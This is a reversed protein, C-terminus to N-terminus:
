SEPFLLVAPPLFNLTNTFHLHLSATLGRCSQARGAEPERHEETGVEAWAGEAARALSKRQKLMLTTHFTDHNFSETGKCIRLSTGGPMASITHQPWSCHGSTCQFDTQYCSFFSSHKTAKLAVTSPSSSYLSFHPKIQTNLLACSMFHRKYGLSWKQASSM